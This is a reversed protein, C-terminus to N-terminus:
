KVRRKTTRLNSAEIMSKFNKKKELILMQYQSNGKLVVKPKDWVNQYATNENGNLKFDEKIEKTVEVKVWPNPFM